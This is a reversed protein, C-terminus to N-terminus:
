FQVNAKIYVDRRQCLFNNRANIGEFLSLEKNVKPGGFASSCHFQYCGYLCPSMNALLIARVARWDANPVKTWPRGLRRILM